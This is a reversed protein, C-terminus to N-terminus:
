LNNSDRLDVYRNEMFELITTTDRAIVYDRIHRDTRDLNDRYRNPMESREVFTGVNKNLGTYQTCLIQLLQNGADEMVTKYDSNEQSVEDQIMKEWYVAM